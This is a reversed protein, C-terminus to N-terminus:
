RPANPPQFLKATASYQEVSSRVADDLFRHLVTTSFLWSAGTINPNSEQFGNLESILRARLHAFEILLESLDYGEQWRIHGHTAATAAACEKVDPNFADTLTKTLSDFLQPLHDRLQSRNLTDSTPVKEDRQVSSIWDSIIHERRHSLFAALRTGVSQQNSSPEAPPIM